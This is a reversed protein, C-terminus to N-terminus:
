ALQAYRYAVTRASFTPPSVTRASVTLNMTAALELEIPDREGAAASALINKAINKAIESRNARTRMASPLSAMARDFVAGLLSLEEPNLVVGKDRLM